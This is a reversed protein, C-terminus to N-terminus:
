EKTSQAADKEDKHSKDDDISLFPDGSGLKHKPREHKGIQIGWMFECRPMKERLKRKEDASWDQKEDFSINLFSLKDMKSLNEIAGKSTINSEYDIYLSHLSDIKAIERLGEDNLKNEKLSVHHLIPKSDKGPIFYQFGTGTIATYELELSKLKPIKAFVALAKDTIYPEEEISIYEVQPFIPMKALQEDTIGSFDFRIHKCKKYSDFSNVLTDIQLPNWICIIMKGESYIVLPKKKNAAGEQGDSPESAIVSITNIFAYLFTCLLAQLAFRM